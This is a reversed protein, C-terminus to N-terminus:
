DACREWLGIVLASTPRRPKPNPIIIVDQTLTSLLQRCEAVPLVDWDRLLRTAVPRVDGSDRRGQLRATDIRSNLAEKEALIEDRTDMYTSEPVLGSALQRTLAKLQKDLDEIQRAVIQIDTKARATVHDAHRQAEASQQTDEAVSELWELVAAEARHRRISVCKVDKVNRWRGCLFTDGPKESRITTMKAGCDGCVVLGTLRYKPSVVSPHRSRTRRSALYAEWCESDIIPDQAGKRYTRVGKTGGPILGAAFGSDMVRILSCLSWPRGQPNTVGLRNLENRLVAFGKGALYEQYLWRVTEVQDPNLTYSKDAYVYGFRNGGCHPLGNDLRRRHADKWQEAKQRSEFAASAFMVDRGFEGGATTTDFPETASELDAGAKEFRDLAMAQHLTKRSLRSWRWVIVKAAEGADVRRLVEQIGKRKEWVLGTIGPDVVIDVLTYGRRACYDRISIEQVEYTITEEGKASRRVYGIAKPATAPVSRLATM